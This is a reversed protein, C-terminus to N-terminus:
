DIMLGRKSANWPDYKVNECAEKEMVCRLRIQRIKRFKKSQARSCVINVVCLISSFSNLVIKAKENPTEKKNYMECARPM